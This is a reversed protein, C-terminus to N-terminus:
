PLRRYRGPTVGIERKFMRAFGGPELGVQIAVESIPLDTSKILMCAKKVRIANLYAHPTQGTHKRFLVSFYSRELGVRAAIDEVPLLKMYENEIIDIAKKIISAAEIRQKDDILASMIKYIEATKLYDAKVSQNNELDILRRIAACVEDYAFANAFPAESTIGAQQIAREMEKGRVFCSLESRASEKTTRHVVRNGPLLVYCDGEKIPFERDNIIISAFGGTCCEIIFCNYINPGHFQDHAEIHNEESNILSLSEDSASQPIINSM